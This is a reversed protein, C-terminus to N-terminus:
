EVEVIKIVNAKMLIHNFWNINNQWREFNYIYVEGRKFDTKFCQNFAAMFDITSKQDVFEFKFKKEM